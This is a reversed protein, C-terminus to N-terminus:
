PRNAALTIARVRNSALTIAAVVGARRRVSWESM